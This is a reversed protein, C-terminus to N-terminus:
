DLTQPATGMLHPLRVLLAIAASFLVAMSATGLPTGDLDQVTVADIGYAALLVADQIAVGLVAAIPEGYHRSDGTLSSSWASSRSPTPTRRNLRGAVSPFSTVRREADTCRSIAAGAQM